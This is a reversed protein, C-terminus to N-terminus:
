GLIQEKQYCGSHHEKWEEVMMQEFSVPLFASIWNQGSALELSDELEAIEIVRGQFEKLFSQELPILEHVVSSSSDLM